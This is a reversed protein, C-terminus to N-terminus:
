PQDELEAIREEPEKVEAEAEDARKEQEEGWERLAENGKRPENFAREFADHLCDMEYKANDKANTAIDEATEDCWARAEKIQEDIDSCTYSPGM